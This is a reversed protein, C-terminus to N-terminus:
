NAIKTALRNVLKWQKKVKIYVESYLLRLSFTSGDPMTGSFTGTGTVVASGNEYIKVSSKDVAVSTYNLKGSKLDDIVEKKNQVWGNSHMYQVSEDLVWNISDYNKKAFWEFKKLHLQDVKAAESTQAHSAFTQLIFTILLYKM